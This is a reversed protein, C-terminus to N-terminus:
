AYQTPAIVLPKPKAILALTEQFVPRYAIGYMILGDKGEYDLRRLVGELKVGPKLDQLKADVFLVKNQDLLEFNSTFRKKLPLKSVSKLRAILPYRKVEMKGTCESDLNKERAPFYIRECGYCLSLIFSKGNVPEVDGVLRPIELRQKIRHLRARILDQYTEIKITTKRKIYEEVTPTRGRKEEIGDQVEFWTANSYAGSGYSVALVQDGPKSNDFVSALSILTSAAYTNGTDLVKLWPKVKKEIDQETLRMREAISEDEVYPIKDETLAACTKMPLYGSPQHFTIADFESLSLDPHKRFLNAIAGIVHSKYAEVTTRGFHSPVAAQDRREAQAVDAGIALGYKIRGSRIESDIFGVGQMGSNCAGELDAVFVNQGMGIFSAVHRAITGVAYPKSESGATVTGIEDPSIGAMRVANEAAETAITITDETHGALATERLLLGHRVKELVRELEKGRKRERERVIKETEIREWPIYVGYGVVGVDRHSM